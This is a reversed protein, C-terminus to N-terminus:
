PSQHQSESHARRADSEIREAADTCPLPASTRPPVKHHKTVFFNHIQIHPTWRLPGRTLFSLLVGPLSFLAAMRRRVCRAARPSM